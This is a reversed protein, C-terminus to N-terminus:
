LLPGKTDLLHILHYLLCIVVLELYLHSTYLHLYLALFVSCPCDGRLWPISQPSSLLSSLSSSSTSYKYDPVPKWPPPSLPVSLSFLGPYTQLPGSICHGQVAHYLLPHIPTGLSPCPLFDSWLGNVTIDSYAHAVRKRFRKGKNRSFEATCLLVCHDPKYSYYHCCSVSREGHTLCGRQTSSRINESDVCGGESKPTSMGM